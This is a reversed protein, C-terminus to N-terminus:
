VQRKILRKGVIYSLLVLAAEPRDLAPLRIGSVSTVDNARMLASRTAAVEKGPQVWHAHAGEAANFAVKGACALVYFTVASKRLETPSPLAQGLKTLDLAESEADFITADEDEFIERIAAVEAPEELADDYDDANSIPELGRDDQM